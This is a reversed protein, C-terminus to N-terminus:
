KCDEEICDLNQTIKSMIGRIEFSDRIETL